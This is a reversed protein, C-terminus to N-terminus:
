QVAVFVKDGFASPSVALVGESATDAPVALLENGTVSAGEYLTTLTDLEDPAMVMLADDDTSSMTNGDVTVYEITSWPM